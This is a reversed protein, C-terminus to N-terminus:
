IEAISELIGEPQKGGAKFDERVKWAKESNLGIMSRCVAKWGYTWKRDIRERMKWSRECDLGVLSAALADASAKKQFFRERMDWAMESDDGALAQGVGKLHAGKEILGELMSNRGDGRLGALSSAIAGRLRNRQEQHLTFYNATRVASKRIKWAEKTDIGAISELM